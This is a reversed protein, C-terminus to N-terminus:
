LKLEVNIKNQDCFDITVNKKKIMSKLSCAHFNKKSREMLFLYNEIYTFTRKLKDLM